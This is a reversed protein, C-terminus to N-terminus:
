VSHYKNWRINENELRKSFKGPTETKFHLHKKTAPHWLKLAIASLFLGKNKLGKEPGYIKDGLIPNGIDSLHIRLQHTRGTEPHLEVLSLFENQLSRVVKLRRFTTRAEKGEIPTSIVGEEEIKGHVVAHYTKQIQREEFQKGLEMRASKTKAVIVLGSTPADLRHVPLPWPLKDAQESTNLNYLLANQLTKFQNGSSILGAPKLVVALYEDEFLINLKLQYEKPPTVELDFLEILEGGKLWWGSETPEGNLRIEGRSIAKKTSKRSPLEEFLGQLYDYLRQEEINEPVSHSQLLRLKTITNLSFQWYNM